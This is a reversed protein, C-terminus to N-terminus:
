CEFSLQDASQFFQIKRPFFFIKSLQELSGLFNFLWHYRSFFLVFILYCLFLFPLVLSLSSCSCIQIISLLKNYVALLLTFLISFTVLFPETSSSSVAYFTSVTPLSIFATLSFQLYHFAMILKQPSSLLIIPFPFCKLFIITFKNLIFSFM